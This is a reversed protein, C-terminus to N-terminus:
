FSYERCGKNLLNSVSGISISAFKKIKPLISNKFSINREKEFIRLYEEYESFKIKNGKEHKGYELSKKQIADNTLHIFRNKV